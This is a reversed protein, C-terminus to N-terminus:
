AISLSLLNEPQLLVRLLLIQVTTATKAVTARTATAKQRNKKNNVKTFSFVRLLGKPKLVFAKVCLWWLDMSLLVFVKTIRYQFDLAIPM